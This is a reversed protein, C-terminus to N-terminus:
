PLKGALDARLQSVQAHAQHHRSPTDNLDRALPVASGTTPSRAPLNLSLVAVDTGSADM